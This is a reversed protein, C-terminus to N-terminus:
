TRARRLARGFERAFSGMESSTMFAGIVLAENPSKLTLHTTREDFDRGVILRVSAPDFAFRAEDGRKGVQIVELADRWLTIQERRKGHRAGASLAWWILAVDIGLFGLVPWAGFLSFILAPLAALTIILALIAHRGRRSLPSHPRLEAAFIPAAQTKTIM